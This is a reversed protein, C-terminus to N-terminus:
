FARIIVGMRQALHHPTTRSRGRVRALKRVLHTSHHRDLRARFSLPNRRGRRARRREDQDRVVPHHSPGSGGTQRRVVDTCTDHGSPAPPQCSWQATPPSLESPLSDRTTSPEEQRLPLTSSLPRGQLVTLPPPMASQCRRALKCRNLLLRVHFPVVKLWHTCLTSCHSLLHTYYM